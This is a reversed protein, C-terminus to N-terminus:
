AGSAFLALTIPVQLFGTEPDTGNVSAAGVGWVATSDPVAAAGNLQQAVGKGPSPIISWAKGDFHLILRLQEGSTSSNEFFGVAYLDSGNVATVGHLTNFSGATSSVNPTTAIKWSVGNWHMAMTLETQNAVTFGVATIDNTGTAVVSTLINQDFNGGRVVNPTPVVSWKGGDFHLALTRAEVGPAVQFGVAWIDMASNASVGTLTNGTSNANPSAVVSWSTGNWHEILTRVAGNKAPKYGVAYVDNAALAVVGNFAANDNTNLVPTHVVNWKAGDWHLAMPKLLFSTCSFSYGVAWVDDTSVTAVATLVNGTNSNECAQPSGPNPSPLTIWKSGDWHQTLTRAGNLNNDNRFGVAWADSTSVAAVANLTNGFPNPNPTKQVSFISTQAAATVALAFVIAFHSVACPLASSRWLRNFGKM